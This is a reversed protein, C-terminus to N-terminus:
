KAVKGPQAPLHAFGYGGLIARGYSDLEWVQMILRPWGKMNALTFHLDIPHNWINNGDNHVASYQTQGSYEGALFSWSEGWEVTWKCSAFAWQFGIGSRIEGIFHVEPIGDAVTRLCNKM